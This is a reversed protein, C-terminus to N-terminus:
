FQTKNGRCKIQLSHRKSAVPKSAPQAPLNNRVVNVHISQGEWNKTVVDTNTSQVPLNMKAVETSTSQVPISNRPALQALLNNRVAITHTSQEPRSNTVNSDTDGTALQTRVNNGAVARDTYQTESNIRVTGTCTAPLNNRVLGTPASQLPRNSEVRTLKVVGIYFIDRHFRQLIKNGVLLQNKTDWRIHRLMGFGSSKLIGGLYNGGGSFVQICQNLKDCVFVNGYGDTTIGAPRSKKMNPLKEPANWELTSGNTNYAGLAPRTSNSTVLLEKGEHIVICLDDVRSHNTFTTLDPKNWSKKNCYLWHIQHPNKSMDVFLLKAPTAQFLRGPKAWSIVKEM